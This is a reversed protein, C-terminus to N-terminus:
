RPPSVVDRIAVWTLRARESDFKGRRAQERLQEANMGLARLMAQAAAQVEEVDLIRFDDRESTAEAAGV